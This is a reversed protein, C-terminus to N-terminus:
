HAGRLRRVRELGGGPPEPAATRCRGPIAGASRRELQLGRARRAKSTRGRSFAVVVNAAHASTWGSIALARVVHEALFSLQHSWASSRTVIMLAGDAIRAPHSNQAVDPGVIEAWGAELLVIPDCAGRRQAPAWGTMATSLKLM